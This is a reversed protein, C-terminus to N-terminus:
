LTKLFAILARKDEPSLSLGFVHGKVARKKFGYGIFATPIYDERLRAADFWDDLTAVSGNHEFPGRYWVGKISPVRYYGTGKRSQMALRADTGVSIPLIDHTLKHEGPVVFGEAPTLKNNTYLPPPHCTPCGEQRFVQEGHRSLADPRNPNVPPKLSYIYLALAYLADDDIRSRAAPDPLDGFPRFGDFDTLAEAGDVLAAYRMLDGISRHRVLGTADLYKRESVGILDPMKPPYLHNTGIRFRVGAPISNEMEIAQELTLNRYIDAPNPSLWPVSYEQIRSQLLRPLREPEEKLSTAHQFGENLNGQAGAIVSGDELVRSHCSGCNTFFGRVDGKKAVWYRVWPYTGDKAQRPYLATANYRRWREATPARGSAVSPLFPADFVAQGAHIWDEKTKLRLFDIADQPEQQNLWELYGPPERDPAYVPYSKPIHVAPIRYYYGPSVHGAQKGLGAIPLEMGRLAEEDWVKPVQPSWSQAQLLTALIPAIVVFKSAMRARVEM